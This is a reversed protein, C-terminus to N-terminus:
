PVCGGLHAAHLESVERDTLGRDYVRFDDIDGDWEQGGGGTLCSTYSGIRLQCVGPVTDIPTGNRVTALVEGNRYLTVTSGTRTIAVHQWTSGEAFGPLDNFVNAANIRFELDGVSAWHLYTTVTPDTETAIEFLFRNTLDAARFWVLWSFDSLPIAGSETVLVSGNAPFNAAGGVVGAGPRFAVNGELIAPSGSISDIAEHGVAEDFKWHAILGDTPGDCPMATAADGAGDDAQGDRLSVSDYGYRGCGAIAILLLCRPWTTRRGGM